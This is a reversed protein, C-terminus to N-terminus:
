KCRAILNLNFNKYRSSNRNQSTHIVPGMDLTTVLPSSKGISVSVGLGLYLLSLVGLIEWILGNAKTKPHKRLLVKFETGM